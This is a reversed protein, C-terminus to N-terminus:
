DKGIEILMNGMEARILHIRFVGFSSKAEFKVPVLMGNEFPRATWITPTILPRNTASKTKYFGALREIQLLCSRARGTYISSSHPELDSINGAKLIINYRRRGDFVKYDGECSQLEDIGLLAKLIMTLPDITHRWMGKPVASRNVGDPAPLIEELVPASDEYIIKVRYPKDDVLSNVRHYLPSLEGNYLKGETSVKSQWSSFWAAFGETKSQTVIHYSSNNLSLSVQLSMVYLPGAYADYSLKISAARLDGPRLFFIVLALTGTIAFVNFYHKVIM